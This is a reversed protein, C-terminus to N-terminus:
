LRSVFPDLSRQGMAWRLQGNRDNLRDLLLPSMQQENGSGYALPAANLSIVDHFRAPLWSPVDSDAALATVNPVYEVYIPTGDGIASNIYLTLTSELGLLSYAYGSVSARQRHPVEELRAGLSDTVRVATIVNVNTIPAAQSGFPYSTRDTPDCTLIATHTFPDPYTRILDEALAEASMNLLRTMQAAPFAANSANTGLWYYLDNRLELLTAM